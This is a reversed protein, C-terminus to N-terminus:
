VAGEDSPEILSIGMWSRGPGHWVEVLGRAELRAIARSLSVRAVRYRRRGIADPDFHQSAPSCRITGDDDYFRPYRAEFGFVDHLLEAGVVDVVGMRQAARDCQQKRRRGERARDLIKQQLPSLRPQSPDRKVGSNAPQSTPLNAGSNAAAPSERMAARMEAISGEPWGLYRDLAAASLKM